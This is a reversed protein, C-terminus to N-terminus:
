RADRIYITCLVTAFSVMQCECVLVSWYESVTGTNATQFGHSTSLKKSLYQNM